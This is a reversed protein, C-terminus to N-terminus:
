KPKSLFLQHWDDDSLRPTGGKMGHGDIPGSPMVHASRLTPTTLGTAGLASAPKQATAPAPATAPPAPAPKPAGDDAETAQTDKLLQNLLKQLQILTEPTIGQSTAPATQPQPAPATKESPDAYAQKLLDDLLAKVPALHRTPDPSQARVPSAALITGLGVITFLSFTKM